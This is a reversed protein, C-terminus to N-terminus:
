IDMILLTEEEGLHEGGYETAAEKTPFYQEDYVTQGKIMMTIRCLWDGGKDKEYNRCVFGVRQGTEKRYTKARQFLKEISRM